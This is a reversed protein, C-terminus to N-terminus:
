ETEEQSLSGFLITLYDRRSYLIRDIYADDKHIRYFALYNGCVLFRYDTEIETISSLPSGILKFHALRDITDQIRSLTNLAAAPSKLTESIYDGIQDLDRLADSSYSINVV